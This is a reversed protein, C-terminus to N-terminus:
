TLMIISYLRNNVCYLITSNQSCIVAFYREHICLSQQTAIIYHTQLYMYISHLLLKILTLILCYEYQYQSKNGISLLIVLLLPQYPVLHEVRATQTSTACGEGQNAVLHLRDLALVVSEVAVM